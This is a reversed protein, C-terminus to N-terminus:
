NHKPWYKTFSVLWFAIVHRPASIRNRETSKEPTATTIQWLQSQPEEYTSSRNKMTADATRWHHSESRWLQPKQTATGTATKTATATATATETATSKWVAVRLRTCYVGGGFSQSRGGGKLSQSAIINKPSVLYLPGWVFLTPRVM